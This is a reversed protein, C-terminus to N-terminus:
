DWVYHEDWEIEHRRLLERFEEKYTRVRHHEAQKELYSRVVEVNSVSVSFAGFGNQWYFWPVVQEKAWKSSEKKVQEVITCITRTRALVFLLHVHDAIGGM